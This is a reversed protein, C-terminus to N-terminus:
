HRRAERKKVPKLAKPPEPRERTTQDYQPDEDVSRGPGKPPFIVSAATMRAVHRRLLPHELLLLERLPGREHRLSWKTRVGETNGAIGAVIADTPVKGLSMRIWYETDELEGLEDYIPSLMLEWDIPWGVFEFTLRLEAVCEPSCLTTCRAHEDAPIFDPCWLCRVLVFGRSYTTALKKLVPDWAKEAERERTQALARARALDFHRDLDGRRVRWQGGIKAGPIEGTQLLRWVASTSLDLLQGLEEVSLIDGDM